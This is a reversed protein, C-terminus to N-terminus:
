LIKIKPVPIIFKGGSKKYKRLNIIIEKQFNYALLLVYDPKKRILENDSVVPIGSPTFRGIKLSSKETIFEIIEPGIHSYNLLTIGKASAGVAAIKKNQKKLGNLLKTLDTSQKLIKRSFQNLKAPYNKMISEEAKVTQYVISKVKQTGKFCISIRISGGHMPIKKIDTIEFGFLSLFPILPKLMIYDIQQHYVTHSLSKLMNLFYPVEVILCGEKKLLMSIGKMFEDLRDVHDFVNTCTIIKIKSYKKVIEEAIQPNFYGNITPIKNKGAILAHKLSPDIGLIQVRMKKFFSLLTGTNSGIDSVLDNKTLKYQQYITQALKNWYNQGTKTVSYDYFYNKKYIIDKPIKSGLQVHNCKLCYTLNLPYYNVPLTLEAKTHFEEPLPVKGLDLFKKTQGSCLRCSM